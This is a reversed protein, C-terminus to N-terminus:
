ATAAGSKKRMKRADTIFWELMQWHDLSTSENGMSRRIELLFKGLLGILDYANSLKADTDAEEGADAGMNFVYQMLDNYSKVVADGGVLAMKFAHRRYALSLMAQMALQNKDKGKSKPDAKWAADSMLLMIFPELIENYAQIRDERLKDELEFRRELQHRIKWGVGALVLILIPTAVAGVASLYDLWTPEPPPM